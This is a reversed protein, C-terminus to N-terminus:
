EEEEFLGLLYYRMRPTRLREPVFQEIIAFAQEASTLGLYRILAELDQDDQPRGGMAKMAVLYAPSVLYVRLGPYDRWLELPPESVLFGKMAENLWDSPLDQERAVAEAAEQIAAKENLFYADVDRTSPRNQVKLVMAAGGVIVIEGHRGQAQLRMGVLRFYTEIHQADM